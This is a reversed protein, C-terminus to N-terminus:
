KADLLGAKCLEVQCLERLGREAIVPIFNAHVRRCSRALEEQLHHLRKKYENVAKRDLIQNSEELTEADILKRGGIPNPDSEWQTLIQIIWLPGADTALRRILTEPDHPFLFDSIVIRVARKGLRLSRHQLIESLSTTSSFQRRELEDLSDILLRVPQESDDLMHIAPRGGLRSTLLMLLTALQRTLREKAGDGTTMSRSADLLVETHPSIEERYMRVMLADSRGFAAWDLHRIDDGPAYERYEQFELSSGTGRGLYEGTQGAVPTRSLALQFANLAYQVDPDNQM